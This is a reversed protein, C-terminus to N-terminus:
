KNNLQMHRIRHYEMTAQNFKYWIDDNRENYSWGDVGLQIITSEDSKVGGEETEFFQSLKQKDGINNEM